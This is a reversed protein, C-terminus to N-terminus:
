AEAEPLILEPRRYQDDPPDFRCVALYGCRGCPTENGLRYPNPRIDGDLIGDALKGILDAIAKLVDDLRGEALLDGGKYPEGSKKVQASFVDSKGQNHHEADPRDNAFFGDLLPLGDYAILGRPKERLFFADEPPAPEDAPDDVTRFVRGVGVELAAIPNGGGDGLAEGQDTLVLLNAVLQLALGYEVRRTIAQASGRYDIAAAGVGPAIDVRDIHGSLHVVRGKPTSIALPKLAADDHDAFSVGTAAPRTMGRSWAARQAELVEALTQEVRALLYRGRGSEGFINGRLEKAVERAVAPLRQKLQEAGGATSVDVGEEIANSVLRELVGHAALGVDRPTAEGGMPEALGLTDKAFGRFPCHAFREVRAVTASLEGAFLADRTAPQLRPDNEYTLSRWAKIVNAQDRLANYLHTEPAQPNAGDKAWVLLRRTADRTTVTPSTVRSATVGLTTAVRTWFPSAVRSRGSTDTTPRTLTLRSSALTMARYAHRREEVAVDAPDDVDIGLQRLRRRDEDSLVEVARDGPPFIGDSLGVVVCRQVGAPLVARTVDALLVADVTPPRVAFELRDLAADLMTAFRKGSMEEVGILATAQAMANAIGAFAQKGEDDEKLQSALDFREITETMAEAHRALPRDSGDFSALIPELMSVLRRRAADAMNADEPTDVSLSQWDGPQEWARRGHMRRDDVFAELVDREAQTLGALPNKALNMAQRHPWADAACALAARLLRVVAHHRAPRRRDTFTALGAEAFLPELLGVYPEAKRFLVCCDRLRAGELTWDQIQAVAAAVEAREDTAELLRVASVNIGVARSPRPQPFDREITALDATAFRPRDKLLTPQGVTVGESRLAQQLALREITAKGFLSNRDTTNLSAPDDTFTVLTQDCYRAMSAILQREFGRISRFGDVFLTAGALGTAHPIRELAHGFRANVDLRDGLLTEYRDAILALDHLKALLEPDGEPDGTLRDAVNKASEGARELDALAADVRATTGQRNAADRFHLLRADLTRLLHGILLERGVRDITVDGQGGSDRVIWGALAEPDVVRVRLTAAGATLALHREMEFTAQKPVLVFIPPGLSAAKTSALVRDLVFRSKGSGARGIM